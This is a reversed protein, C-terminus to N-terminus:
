LNIKAIYGNGLTLEVFKPVHFTKGDDIVKRETNELKWLVGRPYGVAAQTKSIKRIDKWLVLGKMLELLDKKHSAQANRNTTKDELLLQPGMEQDALSM